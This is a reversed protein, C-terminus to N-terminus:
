VSSRGAISSLLECLKCSLWRILAADGVNEENDGTARDGSPKVVSALGNPARRPNSAVLGKGPIAERAGPDRVGSPDTFFGRSLVSSGHSTQPFAKSLGESRLLCMRVCM